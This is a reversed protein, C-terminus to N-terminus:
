FDQGLRLGILRGRAWQADSLGTTQKIVYGHNLVNDAFVSVSTGRGVRVGADLNLTLHPPVRLFNVATASGNADDIEGYPQGSGYEGVLDAFTRHRNYSLGFTSTYTQDHDDSFYATPFGGENLGGTVPGANKNWSLALNAYGQLSRSFSRAVTFEIGRFYAKADNVPLLINTDGVEDDDRVDKGVKYYAAVGASFGPVAHDYGIEYLDDREPRLADLTGNDGVNTDGVLHAADEVPIPQFLRDYYAHLTDHETLRYRINLRPSVQHTTVDQSNQDFRVGYNIAFRGPTWDDQVYLGVNWSHPSSSDSLSGGPGDGTAPLNILFNQDSTARSVDFGLGALHTPSLSRKGDGRVGVYTTHQDQHTDLLGDRLDPDSSSGNYRLSSRRTYLALRSTARGQTHAWVLNAVNGTEQQTDATSPTQFNSGNAGLQLSVRDAAGANYDLKLFGHDEHGHDSRVDQTTPNLFFGTQRRSASAFYGVAGEGGGVAGYTDFSNFSAGSQAISGSPRGQGSKTKIDFVGSLQGGYEAPFGGAYVRLSLIDKPDFTDTISGTISQPVPVGDLYTSFQNDAGRIRLDNNPNISAGPVSRAIVDPLTLGPDAHLIQPAGIITQSGSSKPIPSLLPPATIRIVTESPQPPIDPPTGPAQPSAPSGPGTGPTVPAPPTAAAAPAPVTPAAQRAIAGQPSVLAGASLLCPLLVGAPRRQAPRRTVKRRSGARCARLLVTPSM